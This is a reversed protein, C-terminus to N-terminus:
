GRGKQKREIVEKFKSLDEPIYFEQKVLSYYPLSQPYKDTIRVSIRIGKLWDVESKTSYSRIHPEPIPYFDTFEVMMLIDLDSDSRILHKYKPPYARSGIVLIDRLQYHHTHIRHRYFHWELSTKLHGLLSDRHYEDLDLIHWNTATM